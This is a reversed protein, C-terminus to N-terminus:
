NNVFHVKRSTDEYSWNSKAKKEQTADCIDGLTEGFQETEFYLAFLRESLAVDYGSHYDFRFWNDRTDLEKQTGDNYTIIVKPQYTLTLAELDRQFTEKLHEQMLGWKYHEGEVYELAESTTQGDCFWHEGDKYVGLVVSQEEKPIKSWVSNFYVDKEMTLLELHVKINTIVKSM